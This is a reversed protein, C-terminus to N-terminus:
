VDNAIVKLNIKLNIIIQIKYKIKIILKNYYSTTFLFFLCHKDM